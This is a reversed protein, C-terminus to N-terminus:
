LSQHCGQSAQCFHPQPPNVWGEPLVSSLTLRYWVCSSGSGTGGARPTRLRQDQTERGLTNIDMRLLRSTENITLTQGGLAAMRQIHQIGSRIHADRTSKYIFVHRSRPSPCFAM